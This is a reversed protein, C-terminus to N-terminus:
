PLKAAQRRRVDWNFVRAMNVETTTLQNRLFELDKEVQTMSSTAASHNKALLAAADDVSYELMVNAGLWLCVKDTPPVTAKAYLNDSMMFSTEMAESSGKRSQMHQIIDLTTKIEPIQGKLRNKKQQLNFEMFKYKQYQEDLKRLVKEANEHEPEKMYADVDEVFRMQPIGGHAKQDEAAM